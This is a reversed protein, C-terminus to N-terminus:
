IQRNNVQVSGEPQTPQQERTEDEIPLKKEDESGGEKTVSNEEPLSTSIENVKGSKASLSEGINLPEEMDAMNFIIRGVLELAGVLM